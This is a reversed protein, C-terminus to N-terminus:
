ARGVLRVREEEGAEEPAGSAFKVVQTDQVEVLGREVIDYVDPLVREITEPTDVVEIRVPLDASLDLVNVTRIAGRGTFGALARTVTAGALGRHRFLDLLANHVSKGHRRDSENVTVVLKRAPGPKLM